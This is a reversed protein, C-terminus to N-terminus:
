PDIEVKVTMKGRKSASAVVVVRQENPLIFEMWMTGDDMMELHASSVKGALEDFNGADDGSLRVTADCIYADPLFQGPMFEDFETMESADNM